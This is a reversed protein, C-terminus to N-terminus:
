AFIKTVALFWILKAFVTWLRVCTHIQISVLLHFFYSNYDIIDYVILDFQISPIFKLDNYIKLKWHCCLLRLCFDFNFIEYMWKSSKNKKIWVFIFRIHRCCGMWHASSELVAKSLSFMPFCVRVRACVYCESLTLWDALCGSLCECVCVSERM